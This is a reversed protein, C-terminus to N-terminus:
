EAAVSKVDSLGAEGGEEVALTEGVGGYRAALAIIEANKAGASLADGLRAAILAVSTGEALSMLPLDIHLRSELALRLEVAMLSDMGMQSLPRQPDIGAAPLRLIRAAEEVVVTKLLALAADPDLAALRDALAEDIASPGAKHRIESFLPTALVPLIRRAETWNADAFGVVPLGSAIVAPLGALAQAAPIPRAGLRRALAARIEPREALYGADEIPGWAIALAPKGEGCRRRALAELALNAAVYAGQGPAGLLTTASSFLWFLEIPDDRTLADLAEAGGIKPRLIPDIAASDLDGVLRDEIASAAHVIGRLPPQEARIRDLVAALCVRDAADGRYVRVQAGVAELAAVRAACGPTDPGRRGLLAISGAGHAALWGATAYGFGEIGGTVLYTGDRRLAFDPEGRVPVGFDEDPVLVLKGIHGSGQMLRFADDVESFLFRRYALPRIAGEALLGSIEALLSRASAPRRLPLQDIDVAFYSINQRLPRLHLRRNAYFDRKGLELFRGFPKLAELSREMAEGSLSNLVVDVGQGGTIERAQDAFALGRSDLVHDAGALRLFARKIESGATAIVIAGRHKAYQIAALGVGGAAAHVLVHEGPAIQALHGLAYIATVFAVPLTAAATFSTEPPIPAVADAPTVVRTGLAAPAFAMVRDGIAFVTVASGVARVIGACELGFTPGAFGDILAEEPLLGMAWMVDRFNLGAAHVEIEVEGPEVARLTSAEWGLSDFGGPRGSSLRLAESRWAWRPPLGTRLRLVHRGQPTWVIECEDAVAALEDAVQRAQEGRSSTGALDILRVPLRPLENILVRALGWLAAGVTQSPAAAGAAVQQADCTVVWLEARREEAQIALRALAAIKDAACGEGGHPSGPVFLIIDRAGEDEVPVRGSFVAPPADLAEVSAVRHGEAELRERLSARLLPDDAVLIIFGPERLEAAAGEIHTPASGWYVAAPWPSAVLGAAGVARFGAAALEARWEERSRLPSVGDAASAAPWWEAAQGFVVDWFANPEPDVAVLLGGPVLLDRLEALAGADVQLRACANVVLVVDFRQEGFAEPGDGLSWHLAGAGVFSQTEASLRDAQEPDPSAALYALEIGSSSLRGLIRRTTGAVAGFQLIRLPRDSPWATAVERLWDCLLDIGAISAPSAQLLHEIMPSLHPALSGPGDALIRPLDDLAAAALALEGVLDPAEALLLRWIEATGPLDSVSNIQWEGETETAAGVRDLATLLCEVLGRSAPAIKGADALEDITFPCGPAALGSLASFAAAAILADLLLAQDRREFDPSRDAALRALCVGAQELAAPPGLEVLPAPVLDVHFVRADASARRALEVRRLWCDQLEAVVTGAQDYVAIDASVSRAGIRTLRLRAQRAGRGFPATLRVRGFRWPLFGVGPEECGEAAVLGLLGQLAGDLLAPHLLYDDFPEGIPAPDLRVVAGNEGIVEVTEVTRFRPGYDLGARQALRYLAEAEIVPGGAPSSGWSLLPRAESAASVRGVAHVALPERSLRPRSALEWDGDDSLLTTRLERMRGRDFPLPRRMEVDCAELVAAEPWHSRAAAFAIELMAAAPLVAMGEVAHDAIWPLVQEDLHNLWHPVPSHQRFGLLPHDFPPSEPDNAEVTKDFWFSQRQWPYLPVGRPDARGAFLPAAPLDYGAVYCRAALSPFPDGYGDSRSLSGIVRGEASAARLADTLYAHLIGNPGIEVFIRYGDAILAAAAEAFRVPQRINRWWHDADLVPGDVVAGTVSSVLM